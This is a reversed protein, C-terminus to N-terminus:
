KKPKRGKKNRTADQIKLKLEKIKLTKEDVEETLPTAVMQILNDSGKIQSLANRLVPNNLLEM